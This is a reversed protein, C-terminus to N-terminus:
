QRGGDQRNAQSAPVKKSKPKTKGKKTPPSASLRRESLSRSDESSDDQLPSRSRSTVRGSSHLSSTRGGSLKKDGRERNRVSTWDLSSDLSQLDAMLDLPPTPDPVSALALSSAELAQTFAGEPSLDPAASVPPQRSGRGTDLALTFAGEPSLSPPESPLSASSSASTIPSGQGLPLSSSATEPANQGSAPSPDLPVQQSAGETCSPTTAGAALDSVVQAAGLSSVSHPLSSGAGQSLRESAGLPDRPPSAPLPRESPELPASSVPPQRSGRGTDQQQSPGSRPQLSGSLSRKSAQQRGEVFSDVRADEVFRFPSGRTPSSPPPPPPPGLFPAPLRLSSWLQSPVGQARVGARCFQGVHGAHGCRSCRRRHADTYVFLRVATKGVTDELNLFHPLVTDANLHISLHIIGDSAHTWFRDQSRRAKTVHGFCRLHQVVLDTELLAPVGTIRVQTMADAPAWGYVLTNHYATWPVGVSVRDLVSQYVAATSFAVRLLNTSPVNFIDVVEDVKLKLDDVLFANREDHTVDPKAARLDIFLANVELLPLHHLPLDQVPLRGPGSGRGGSSRAADAYSAMM